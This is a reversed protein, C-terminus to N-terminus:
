QILLFLQLCLNELRRVECAAAEIIHALMDKVAERDLRRPPNAFGKTLLKDVIGSVDGLTVGYDELALPADISKAFHYFPWGGM